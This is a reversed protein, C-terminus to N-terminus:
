LMGYRYGQESVSLSQQSSELQHCAVAADKNSWNEDYIASWVGDHCIEVRGELIEDGM